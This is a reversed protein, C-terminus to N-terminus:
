STETKPDKSNRRPTDMTFYEAAPPLNQALCLKESSAAEIDCLAPSNEAGAKSKSASTKPAEPVSIDLVLRGLWEPEIVPGFVFRVPASALLMAGPLTLLGMVSWVWGGPWFNPSLIYVAARPHHMSFLHLLPMIGLTTVWPHLLYPYMTRSGAETFFCKCLPVAALFLAIAIFHLGYRASRHTWSLYFDLGCQERAQWQWGAGEVRLSMYDFNLDGLTGLDFSSLLHKHRLGFALLAFLTVRAAVQIWQSKRLTREAWTADFLYGATFFPFFAMTRQMAFNQRNGVWFGSVLGICLALTMLFQPKVSALLAIVLRWSVLAAIYWELGGTTYTDFLNIIPTNAPDRHLALLWWAFKSFIYPVVLNQLLRGTREKTLPQKSVVGSLFSFSVMHFFSTLVLVPQLYFVSEPMNQLPLSITHGMIISFILLFRANDLWYSRGRPGECPALPETEASTASDSEGRRRQLSRCAAPLVAMALVAGLMAATALMCHRTEPAISKLGWLYSCPVQLVEGNDGRWTADAPNFHAAPAQTAQARLMMAQYSQAAAAGRYDNMSKAWKAWAAQAAAANQM